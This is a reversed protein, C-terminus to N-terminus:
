WSFLNWMTPVVGDGVIDRRTDPRGDGDSDVMYYPAGVAPTVKVMWLQGSRRFEEIRAPGQPTQIIRVSDPAVQTAELPIDPPLPPPPPVVAPSPPIAPVSPVPPPSPPDMALTHASGLLLLASAIMKVM